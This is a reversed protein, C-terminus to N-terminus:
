TDLIGNLYLTKMKAMNNRAVPISAGSFMQFGNKDMTKVHLLNVVYSRHPHVFHPHKELLVAMNQITDRNELIVGNSQVLFLKRNAAEMYAIQALPIQSIGNTTQFSIHPESQSLRHIQRDLSQFLDSQAVPKLLYDQAQVRYSAVAFQPSSTLFLIPLDDNWTRIEEATEIGNLGRMCIDLFLIDLHSGKALDELLAEGSQYEVITFDATHSLLLARLHACDQTLDDCIGIIM